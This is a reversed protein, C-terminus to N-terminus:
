EVVRLDTGRGYNKREEPSLWLEAREDLVLERRDTWVEEPTPGTTGWPRTQRNATLRAALLDDSTWFGARGAREALHATLEKLTRKARECGGNYWACYPPSYLGFISWGRLLGKTAEARFAPGIDCKIVLPAGHTM